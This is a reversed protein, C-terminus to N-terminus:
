FRKSKQICKKVAEFVVSNINTSLREGVRLLVDLTMNCHQTVSQHQKARLENYQQCILFFHYANEVEGFQLCM